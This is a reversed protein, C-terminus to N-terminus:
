LQWDYTNVSKKKPKKRKKKKLSINFNIQKTQSLWSKIQINATADFPSAVPDM